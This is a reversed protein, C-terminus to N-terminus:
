ETAPKRQSITQQLFQLFNSTTWFLVMSAPFTFFILFFAAAMLYLSRRQSRLTAEPLGHPKLTTSGVVNIMTMLIPLLNIADGFLPIAFPLRAITDPYSLDDIWLFGHGRVAELEGFVNFIAVLVPLQVMLGLMPKMTHFPTIGLAKHAALIEESIKAGKYKRKIEALQPELIALNSNVQKQYKSVQRNIPIMVVRLIVSTAIIAVGWSGIFGYLALVVWEVGICLYRFVWWLQAYRLAKSLDELDANAASSTRSDVLNAPNVLYLQLRASAGPDNWEVVTSDESLSIAAGPASM